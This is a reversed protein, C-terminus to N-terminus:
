LTEDSLQQLDCGYAFILSLCYLALGMVLGTLNVNWGPAGITYYDVLSDSCSGLLGLLICIVATKRILVANARTFPLGDAAINRFISYVFFLIFTILVADALMFVFLLLLSDPAMRITTGNSATVDFASLFSAKTEGVSFLLICIAFLALAAVAASVLSGARLILAAKKGATQIKQQTQNM